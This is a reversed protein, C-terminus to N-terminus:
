AAKATFLTGDPATVLLDGRRFRIGGEILYVDNNEHTVARGKYQFSWPVGNVNSGGNANGYEVFSEFNIAEAVIKPEPSELKAQLEEVKKAQGIQYPMWYAHAGTAGVKEAVEKSEYLYISGLLQPTMLDAFVTANIMWADGREGWVRTIIAPHENSGNAALGGILVIRGITPTAAM